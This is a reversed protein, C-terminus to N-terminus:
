GCYKKMTWNKFALIGTGIKEELVVEFGLREYFKVTWYRQTSLALVANPTQNAIIQFQKQLIQSGLGKGRMDEQIVMNNLYRYAQVTKMSRKLHDEIGATVEMTRKFGDMGMKFPVQWLGAKLKAGMGIITENPKTWFGMARTTDDKSLCFSEAGYKLQLKLNAGLLWTLYALRTKDNPCLYIHAPNDYFSAAVLKAASPILAASIEKLEISSTNPIM